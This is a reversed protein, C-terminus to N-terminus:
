VSHDKFSSLVNVKLCGWSRSILTLHVVELDGLRGLRPWHVSNREPTVIVHVVERGRAVGNQGRTFTKAGRSWGLIKALGWGCASSGGRGPLLHYSGQMWKTAWLIICSSQEKWPNKKKRNPHNYNTLPDDEEHSGIYDIMRHSCLLSTISRMAKSSNWKFDQPPRFPFLIWWGWM